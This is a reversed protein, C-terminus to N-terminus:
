VLIKEVIKLIEALKKSKSLLVYKKFEDLDREGFVEWNLRLDNNLELYLNGMNKLYLFDFLAKAKTAKYIKKGEWEIEEFGLFLNKKINKYIFQGLFNKIMRSSKITISTVAYVAEPIIGEQSLVYELSIYSPFRLVCGIYESYITKNISQYFASTTYLGKKLNLLYNIKRLRAIKKDLNEGKKDILM